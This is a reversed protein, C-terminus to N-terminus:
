SHAFVMCFLKSNMSKSSVIMTPISCCEWKWGEGDAQTTFVHIGGATRDDENILCQQCWRMFFRDDRLLTNTITTPKIAANPIM